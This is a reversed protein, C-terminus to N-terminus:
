IWASSMWSSKKSKGGGKSQTKSKNELFVNGSVEKTWVSLITKLFNQGNKLSQRGITEQM